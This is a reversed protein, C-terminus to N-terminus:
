RPGGRAEHAAACAECCFCLLSGRVIRTVAREKLIYVGCEPDRVMEGEAPGGSNRPEPKPPTQLLWRWVARLAYYALAAYVVIMLARM